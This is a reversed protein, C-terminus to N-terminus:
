AILKVNEVYAMGELSYVRAHVMTDIWFMTDEARNWVIGNPITANTVQSPSPMKPYLRSWELRTCAQVVKQHISGDVDVMYLAGKEKNCHTDM